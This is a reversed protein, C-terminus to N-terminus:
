LYIYLKYKIIFLSSFISLMSISHVSSFFPISFNHFFASFQIIIYGLIFGLAWKYIALCTWMLTGNLALQALSFDRSSSFNQLLHGLSGCINNVLKALRPIHLYRGTSAQYFRSVKMKRKWNQGQCTCVILNINQLIKHKRKMPWILQIVRKKPRYLAGMIVRLPCM